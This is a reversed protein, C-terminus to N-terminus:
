RVTLCGGTEYTATMIGCQVAWVLDVLICLIVQGQTVEVVLLGSQRGALVSAWRSVVAGGPNGLTISSLCSVFIAVLRVKGVGGNM